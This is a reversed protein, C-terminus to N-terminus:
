SASCGPPPHSSPRIHAAPSRRAPLVCFRPSPKVPQFWTIGERPTRVILVRNPGAAAWAAVPGQGDRIVPAPPGFRDPPVSRQRAHLLLRQSHKVVACRLQRDDKNDGRITRNRSFSTTADFERGVKKDCSIYNSRHGTAVLQQTITLTHVQCRVTWQSTLTAQIWRDFQHGPPRSKPHRSPDRRLEWSDAVGMVINNLNLLVMYNHNKCRTDCSPTATGGPHDARCHHM